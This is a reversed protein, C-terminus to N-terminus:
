PYDIGGNPPKCRRLRNIGKIIGYVLGYKKIALIMYTSCTPEFRCQERVSLPAWAKYGLVAGIVARKVLFYSGVGATVFFIWSPFPFVKIALLTGGVWIAVLALTPIFLYTWLDVIRVERIQGKM